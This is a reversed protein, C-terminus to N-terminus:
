NQLYQDIERQARLLQLELNNEDQMAIEVLGNVLTLAQDYQQFHPAAIAQEMADALIELGLQSDGPTDQRLIEQTQESQTVGRLASVGHSDTFLMKQTQESCTMEKLFEWALRKHHSRSGIGMMLTSLESSNGGSPGRPMQICDWAFDSYKKIRWPYPQYTRYDSFLFPRFAVKGEDFSISTIDCGQYLKELKQEFAIAEVVQPAGLQCYMGDDSFLTGGNSILADRWSYGYSGFQDLTGDGDIDRTVQACIHYFDDWTWNNEPVSIGEQELLTKNVFMLTPVCEYPLAYQKANEMGSALAADYFADRSVTDDQEIFADLPELADPRLAKVSRRVESIGQRATAAIVEMQKKAMDPSVEMMQLCADAGATIGTLAHGLTDHIERALRNRERTEAMRESEAAYAKLQDNMVSLQDNVHELEHNLHRIATNEEKKQSFLLVMYGIFLISNLASLLGVTSQMFQRTQMDYCIFYDTVSVMGFVSRLVDLSTLLYLVIMARLFFMRGRIQMTDILDVVILLLLGNYDLHLTLIIILGLMPELWYVVLKNQEKWRMGKERYIISVVILVFIGVVALGISWPQAPLHDLDQLFDLGAGRRAVFSPTCAFVVSLLLVIAFNLLLMSHRITDRMNYVRM